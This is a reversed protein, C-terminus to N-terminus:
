RTNFDSVRQDLVLRSPNRGLVPVKGLQNLKKNNLIMRINSEMQCIVLVFACRM